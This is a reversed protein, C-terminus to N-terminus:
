ARRAGAALCYPPIAQSVVSNAGIFARTGVDNIITCKTTITADDEIHLPRFDYGQHCCRSTSTASAITATM